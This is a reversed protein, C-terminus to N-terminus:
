TCSTRGELVKSLREFEVKTVRCPTCGDPRYITVHGADDLDMFVSDEPVVHIKQAADVFRVHM